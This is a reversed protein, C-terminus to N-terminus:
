KDIQDVLRKTEMVIFMIEGDALKIDYRNYRRKNDKISQPIYEPPAVIIINQTRIAAPWDIEKPFEYRDFSKVHVFGDNTPPYRKAFQQYEFPNYSQYFLLFIYPSQERNAMIIKKRNFKEQSIFSILKKYGIGWNEGENRPFHVFYRDIYLAFNFAFLLAVVGYAFKQTPRKKIIEKLWDISQVIGLGVVLPLVPFIAFMRNTHPADKTISAPVAAILFWWIICKVEPSKRITMLRIFGALLFLAEVLYMNGFNAINHAKNTGGQIFLFQPSFANLYNQTIKETSFVVKNHFIKGVIDNSGHDVRRNEINIHVTAPDGFINIGSLKTKDAIFLTNYLIFGTLIIFITLGHLVYKNHLIFSRYFLFIGVLLLTTFIHNGAYIFYTLAFSIFSVIIFWSKGQISKLFFIMGITIFFVAVNSESEVRSLHLHWPAIALLFSTLLALKKSKLLAVVLIYTTFITAVGFLASPLRVAFESLGFLAVFPVTLYVYFPLKWDGFSEFSIPSLRGYEDKGTLLLSYATYGISAEDRNVGPPIASLKYIRLLAGITIILLLTLIQIKSM